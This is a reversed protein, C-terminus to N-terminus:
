VDQLDKRGGGVAIGETKTRLALIVCCRRKKKRHYLLSEPGRGLYFGRAILAKKRHAEKFERKSVQSCM